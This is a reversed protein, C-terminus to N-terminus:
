FWWGKGNCDMSTFDLPVVYEENVNHKGKVFRLVYITEGPVLSTIFNGTLADYTHTKNENWVSAYYVNRYNGNKSSKERNMRSSVLSTERLYVKNLKVAEYNADVAKLLFGPLKWFWLYGIVIGFLGFLVFFDRTRVAEVVSMVGGVVCFFFFCKWIGFFIHILKRSPDNEFVKLLFDRESSYLNRYESM